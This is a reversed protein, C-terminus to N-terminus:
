KSEIIRRLRPKLVTGDMLVVRYTESGEDVHVTVLYYSVTAEGARHEKLEAHNAPVSERDARMEVSAVALGVAKEAGMSGPAAGGASARAIVKSDVFFEYIFTLDGGKQDENLPDLLIADPTTVTPGAHLLIREGQAVGCLALALCALMAQVSSRM